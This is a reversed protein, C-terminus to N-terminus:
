GTDLVPIPRVLSRMQQQRGSRVQGLAMAMMVAAALTARAKMKAHGRIYHREFRYGQAFRSFIREMASRLNYSRRWSLTARPTPTFNRRNQEDLKVRVTRGYNSAQSGANALCQRWGECELDYVAAPCRYKLTNRRAEFGYFSMERLQATQPCQCHLRGTEDYVINDARNEFLPRTITATPDYGPMNKEERWMQKLDISPRIRYADWLTAKLRGSDLGRDASFERCRMALQPPQEFLKTLMTELQKPESASAKTVEVALPIECRTDGIVHLSYGFWSKIKSWSKGTKKDVGGYEHRGWDADADSTRGKSKITRGSSHSKLAKGDYGLHTGFDAIEDMLQERLQWIMHSMM